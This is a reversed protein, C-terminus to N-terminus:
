HLAVEGLGTVGSLLSAMLLGIVLGLFVILAPGMLKSAAEIRKLAAAEEFAGSRVLMPGLAGTQGTPSVTAGSVKM